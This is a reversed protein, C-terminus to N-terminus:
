STKFLWPGFTTQGAEAVNVSAASTMISPPLVDASTFSAFSAGIPTMVAFSKNAAKTSPTPQSAETALHSRAPSARKGPSNNGAKDTALVADSSSAALRMALWFPVSWALWWTATFSPLSLIMPTRDARSKAFAMLLFLPLAIVCRRASWETSFTIFARAAKGSHAAALVKACANRSINAALCFQTTITSSISPPPGSLLRTSPTMVGRSTKRANASCTGPVVVTTPQNRPTWLLM